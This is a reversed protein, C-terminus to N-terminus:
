SILAFATMSKQRKEKMKKEGRWAFTDKEESILVFIKRKKDEREGERKKGRQREVTSETKNEKDREELHANKRLGICINKENEM